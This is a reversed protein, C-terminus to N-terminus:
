PDDNRDRFRGAIIMTVIVVTPAMIVLGMVIMVIM